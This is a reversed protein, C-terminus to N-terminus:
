LLLFTLGFELASTISQREQLQKLRILVEKSLKESDHQVLFQLGLISYYIIM